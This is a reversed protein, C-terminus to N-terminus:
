AKKAKTYKCAEGAKCRHRKKTSAVPQGMWVNKDKKVLKQHKETLVAQVEDFCGYHCEVDDLQKSGAKPSFMKWAKQESLPKSAHVERAAAKKAAKQAASLAPKSRKQGSFFTRWNKGIIVIMLLEFM